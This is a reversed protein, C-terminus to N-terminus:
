EGCSDEGDGAHGGEIKGTFGSKACSIVPLGFVIMCGLSMMSKSVRLSGSKKALAWSMLLEIAALALKGAGHCTAPTFKGVTM